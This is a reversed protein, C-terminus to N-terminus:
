CPGHFQTPFRVSIAVTMLPWCSSCIAGASCCTRVDDYDTMDIDFVLEREVPSFVRDSGLGAALTAAMAWENAAVGGYVVAESM